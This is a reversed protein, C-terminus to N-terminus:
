TATGGKVSQEADTPQDKRIDITGFGATMGSSLPVTLQTAEVQDDPAISDAELQSGISSAGDEEDDTMNKSQLLVAIKSPAEAVRAHQYRQHSPSTALLSDRRSTRDSPRQQVPLAQAGTLHSPSQDYEATLAPQHQEDKSISTAREHYGGEAYHERQAHDRGRSRSRGRPDESRVSYRDEEDGYVPRYSDYLGNGYTPRYSDYTPTFARQVNRSRSESM